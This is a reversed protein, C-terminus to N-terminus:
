LGAGLQQAVLRMRERIAPPAPPVSAMARAPQAAGCQPGHQRLWWDVQGADWRSQKCIADGGKLVTSVVIRPTLPAPLGDLRVLHRMLRIAARTEMSGMGLMRVMDAFGYQMRYGAGGAHPAPMLSSSQSPAAAQEPRKLPSVTGM